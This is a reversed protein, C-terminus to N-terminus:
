PTGGLQVTAGASALAGAAPTTTGSPASVLQVKFGAAHLALVARRLPVGRVDPVARPPLPRPKRPGKTPLLAVFPVTRATDDVAVQEAARTSDSRVFAVSDRAVQRSAADRRETGAADLPREVRSRALTTRDLAANRSALAAQLVAKTVPAATLGGVYAGRPNDLKVLIVFQPHDGPFLGVFTPIHQGAAYRGHVTRRATGTKGALSFSGLDAKMATGEEVVGLLM